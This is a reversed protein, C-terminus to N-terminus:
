NPCIELRYKLAKPHKLDVAKQLQLCANDIESLAVHAIGM